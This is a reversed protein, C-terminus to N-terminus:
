FFAESSAEMAVYKCGFKVFEDLYDYLKDADPTTNPNDGTFAACSRGNTGIYGCLNSGILAQIITSVSTKGDTGTVGIMKLKHDPYDYFKQCLYPFERNTNPVKIVPVRSENVDRSVILAAAGNNIADDIYDHRDATVGMTCVFLDGKTVEKSNIKISKIKTDYKLSPYLENLSKM